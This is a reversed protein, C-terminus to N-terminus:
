QCGHYLLGQGNGGRYREGGQEGEGNTYSEYLRNREFKHTYIFIVSSKLANCVGLFIWKFCTKKQKKYEGLEDRIM